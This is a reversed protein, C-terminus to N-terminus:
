WGSNQQLNTNNFLESQPLPYRYMKDEFVRQEVLEQEYTFSDDVEKTIKVGYIDTTQDGIKWRRIDWFRHDEFALEVRRENRLKERFEEKTLGGPFDPMDSRARIMNVAQRATMGMGGDNEPGFIENMAEAYNLLVEGYRFLVWTHEKSTTNTPDLDIDERVYKKLYYGTKTAREQPPGHLGGNWIELTIGKWTSGNYMVTSSLRPDRGEYPNDPDYGSGPENIGQGSSQMEYSNVLNQTPSTGPSAGEFGIPFNSREFSNSNGLRRGFILETGTYNNVINNYNAELTYWSSDILAKSALAAEEWMQMDGGPNNLASAAYLLARAKLALAAGRTARGTENNTISSYSVPLVQSVADTEDVIFRLVENFSAQQVNNADEPTLVDTVLPVSGYRKLLEFYFYARLFRAEYPYLELQEMLQDYDNNYQREPFTQGEIEVLFQNAARIGSYMQGWSADLTQIASWSGDNFKQVNSLEWIEEANDSASARMAGDISNFGSPLYSYINTLFSKSRDFNSFVDEKKLDTSEDYDLFNCGAVSALLFLFITAKLMKM